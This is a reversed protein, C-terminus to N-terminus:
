SPVPAGTSPDTMVRLGPLNLIVVQQLYRGREDAEVHGSYARSKLNIEWSKRASKYVLEGAIRGPKGDILPHVGSGGFIEAM